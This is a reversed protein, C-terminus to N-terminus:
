CKCIMAVTNSNWQCSKPMSLQMINGHCHCHCKRSMVKTNGSIDNGHCQCQSKQCSMQMPMVNANGNWHCTM